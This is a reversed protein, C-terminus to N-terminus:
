IADIDSLNVYDALEKPLNLQQVSEIINGSMSSRIVLRCSQKLTTPNDLLDTLVTHVPPYATELFALINPEQVLQHYKVGATCLMNVCRVECRSMAIYLPLLSSNVCALNEHFHFVTGLESRQRNGELSCNRKLLYKVAPLNNSRVAYILASNGYVDGKDIDLGADLCIDICRNIDDSTAYKGKYFVREKDVLIHLCHVGSHYDRSEVNCGADVLIKMSKWDRLRASWLLPSLGSCDQINLDVGKLSVLLKLTEHKGNEVAVHLATSGNESQHNISLGCSLLCELM